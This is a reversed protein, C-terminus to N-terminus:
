EKQETRRKLDAIISEITEEGLPKPGAEEESAAAEPEEAAPRPEVEPAMAAELVDAGTTEDAAESAAEAEAEPTIEDEPIPEAGGGPLAQRISLSIRRRDGDIEIVKVPVKQGVAVV